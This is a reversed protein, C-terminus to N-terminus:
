LVPIILFSLTINYLYHELGDAIGGVRRRRRRRRWARERRGTYSQLGSM